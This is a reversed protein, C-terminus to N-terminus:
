EAVADEDHIEPLDHLHATGVLYRCRRQMRVRLGEKSRRRRHIGIFAEVTQQKHTIGRIRHVRRRSTAETGTARVGHLLARSGAGGAGLLCDQGTHPTSDRYRAPQATLAKAESAVPMSHGYARSTSRHFRLCPWVDWWNKWRWWM